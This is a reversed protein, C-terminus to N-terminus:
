LMRIVKTWRKRDGRLAALSKQQDLRLESEPEEGEHCKFCHQKLFPLFQGDFFEADAATSTKKTEAADPPQAAAPLPSKSRTLMVVGLVFVATACANGTLLLGRFHRM